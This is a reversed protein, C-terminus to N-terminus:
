NKPALGDLLQDIISDAFHADLSAHGLLLRFFVPGYIQDLATELDLNLRVDKSQIAKELM